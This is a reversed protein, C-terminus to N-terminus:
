RNGHVEYTLQTLRRLTARTIELDQEALAGFRAEHSATAREWLRGQVTLGADTLRILASTKHDPNPRFELLGAGVLENATKQVAQRSQGVRRAARAVTTSPDTIADMLHWQSLTVSESSAIEEGSMRLAGAAEFVDAILSSMEDQM